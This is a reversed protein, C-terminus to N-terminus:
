NLVLTMRAGNEEHYKGKENLVTFSTLNENLIANKSDLPRQQERSEENWRTTSSRRSRSTGIAGTAVLRAWSPSPWSAGWWWPCRRMRGGQRRLVNSRQLEYIIYMDMYDKRVLTHVHWIVLYDEFQGDGYQRHTMAAFPQIQFRTLRVTVRAARKDDYLKVDKAM